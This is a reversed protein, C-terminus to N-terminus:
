SRLTQEINIETELVPKVVSLLRRNINYDYLGLSMSVRSTAVSRGILRIHRLTEVPAKVIIIVVSKDPNGM